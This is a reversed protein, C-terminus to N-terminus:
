PFLTSLYDWEAKGAPKAIVSQVIVHLRLEANLAPAPRTLTYSEILPVTTTAGRPLTQKYYYYGDTHKVWYNGWNAGWSFTGYIPTALNNDDWPAISQWEGDIEKEWWGVIAARVYATALGNNQIVVDDLLKNDNSVVSETIEVQVEKSTSLTYTYIMDASWDTIGLENFTRTLTYENGGVDFVLSLAATAPISQPLVMFTQESSNIVTGNSVAKNFQQTYTAATSQNQWDFEVDEGDQTFTCDGKSLINQLEVRHITVNAPMRGVKFTLAAFAHHFKLPVAETSKSVNQKLSYVYDPQSVADSSDVSPAPLTYSFSGQWVGDVAVFSSPRAASPAYAMFSLSVTPWLYGTSSSVTMALDEFYTKSNSVAATVFYESLTATTIAAARSQTDATQEQPEVTASNTHSQQRNPEVKQSIFLSDTGFKVAMVSESDEAVSKTKEGETWNDNFAIDFLIEDGFAVLSDNEAIDSRCSTAVLSLVGIALLFAIKIGRTM